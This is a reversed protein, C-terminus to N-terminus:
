TSSRRLTVYEGLQDWLSITWHKPCNVFAPSWVVHPPSEHNKAMLEIHEAALRWLSHLGSLRCAALPDCNEAEVFLLRDNNNLVIVCQHHHRHKLDLGRTPRGPVGM